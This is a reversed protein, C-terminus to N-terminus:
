ELEVKKNLLRSARWYVLLMLGMVITLTISTAAGFPWDRINLFQVKIVNGILLNKAGGMLDSVYFLGMAPLMVLLCGAIIGPMTLPIIIRIFTQLKSAGLDRAAELLPKDLKEISSYLPMVMFPLLIYVLGIIVASPTFMIRIPTDIVGLWLLFENLYGKTSLFIKLGYIRILSNTWFPVILLFLLLPRVKHPLKALFWAFPYGLVLCALTAILAMNLSHLLVEFYLPDLLRTYNDLTFVMKVFSADDRTLFCCPSIGPGIAARIHEPRCGYDERMRLAARAAIGLATGRWGAHVAAACRRVPDLLLVPICDASFIALPVGPCNTVLGDASDYDRERYLGKGCDGETVVRVDDRHVQQSFVTKTSDFGVAEGYRRFNERVHEIQDGRSTGLNLSTLYGRSVGGLRSSFGHVAGGNANLRPASFWVLGNEERNTQFHQDNM